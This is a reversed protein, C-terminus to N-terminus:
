SHDIYPVQFLVKIELTHSDLARVGIQDPRIKGDVADSHRCYSVPDFCITGGDQIPSAAFSYVYDEAHRCAMRGTMPRLKVTFTLGDASTNFSECAAPVPDGQPNQHMLGVFMDGMIWDEWQLQSKSPDLDGTRRCQRPSFLASRRPLISAAMAPARGPWRPQWAAAGGGALVLRRNFGNKWM